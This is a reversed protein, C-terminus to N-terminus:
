ERNENSFKLLEAPHGVFGNLTVLHELNRNTVCRLRTFYCDIKRQM